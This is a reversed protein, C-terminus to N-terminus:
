WRKVRGKHVRRTEKLQRLKCQGVSRVQGEKKAQGKWGEQPVLKLGPKEM